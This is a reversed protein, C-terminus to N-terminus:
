DVSSNFILTLKCLDMKPKPGCVREIENILIDIDLLEIKKPLVGATVEQSHVSERDDVGVFKAELALTIGKDLFEGDTALAEVLKYLKDSAAALRPRPRKIHKQKKAVKTTVNLKHQRISLAFGFDSILM